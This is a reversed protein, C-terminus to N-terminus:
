SECRVEDVLGELNEQELCYGPRRFILLRLPSDLDRRRRLVNLLRQCGDCFRRDGDRPAACDNGHIAITLKLTHLRSFPLADGAAGQLLGAVERMRAQGLILEEVNHRAFVGAVFLITELIRIDFLPSRLPLHAVLSATTPWVNFGRETNTWVFGSELSHPRRQLASSDVRAESVRNSLVLGHIRGPRSKNRAAVASLVHIADTYVADLLPSDLESSTHAEVFVFSSAPIIINQVFFSCPALSGKLRLVTLRPLHARPSEPASSVSSRPQRSLQELTLDELLPLHQLVTLVEAHTLTRCLMGWRWIRLHTLTTRHPLEKWLYQTLSLDVTRLVPADLISWLGRGEDHPVGPLPGYATPYSHSVYTSLQPAFLRNPVPALATLVDNDARGHPFIIVGIRHLESFVLRQELIDQRRNSHYIVSLPSRGSRDLLMQIYEVKRGSALEIFSWLCAANSAVHRWHFCVHSIIVIPLSSRFLHRHLGFPDHFTHLGDALHALYM